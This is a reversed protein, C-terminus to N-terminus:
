LFFQKGEMGSGIEIQYMDNELISFHNHNM